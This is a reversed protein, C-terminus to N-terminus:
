SLAKLNTEILTKIGDSHGRKLNEELVDRLLREKYMGLGPESMYAYYTVSSENGKILAKRLNPPLDTRIALGLVADLPPKNELIMHILDEDHIINPHELLTQVVEDHQKLQEWILRLTSAALYPNDLLFNIKINGNTLSERFVEHQREESLPAFRIIHQILQETLLSADIEEVAHDRSFADNISTPFNPNIVLQKLIPLTSTGILFQFDEKNLRKNKALGVLFRETEPDIDLQKGDQPPKYDDRLRQMIVRTQDTHEALEEGVQRYLELQEENQEDIEHSVIDLVDIPLGKSRVLAKLADLTAKNEALKPCTRLSRFIEVGVQTERNM